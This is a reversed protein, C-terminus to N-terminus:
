GGRGSLASVAVVVPALLVTNLAIGLLKLVSLLAV